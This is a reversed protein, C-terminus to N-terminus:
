DNILDAWLLPGTVGDDKVGKGSRYVIHNVEQSPEQVDVHLLVTAILNVIYGETGEGIALFALHDEFGFHPFEPVRELELLESLFDLLLELLHCLLM